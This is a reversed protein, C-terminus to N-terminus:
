NRRYVMKKALEHGDNGFMDVLTYTFELSTGAGRSTVIPGDVVVVEEIHNGSQIDQEMGPYCTYNRNELLGARDLVIPAACIAAVFKGTDVVAQLDAILESHDRLNTAGPMGGPLVVLDYSTLQGSFRTDAEVRIGHSGEVTRDLLGIMHCDFGARRFIDVPALAEIEEFGPALMVAVKVM